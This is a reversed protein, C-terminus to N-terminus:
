PIQLSRVFAYLDDLQQATLTAQGPMVRGPLGKVVLEVFKNRDRTWAGTSAALSESYEYRYPSVSLVREAKGEGRAGHCSACHNAYIVAGPLSSNVKGAGHASSAPVTMRQVALDIPIRVSDINGAASAAASSAAPKGGASNAPTGTPLSAVLADTIPPPNPIQTYVYHALAWTEDPPLLMFSPMSTGPSGKLITNHLSVIDNGFKFQETHFNRPKPNISAARDGNGHGDPGHCSACNIAFLTKGKAALSMDKALAQEDAVAATTRTGEAPPPANRGAVDGMKYGRFFAFAIALVAIIVIISYSFLNSRPKEQSM